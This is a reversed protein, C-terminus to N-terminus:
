LKIIKSSKIITGQTVEVFYIGPQLDDGIRVPQLPRINNISKVVTGNQKLVRLNVKENSKSLITVYFHSPSPNPLVTILFNNDNNGQSKPVNVTASASDKNGNVDTAIVKITYIRGNGSELREARLKVLHDNVIQWDPALDGPEGSQVPENSSVVIQTNAVGANDSVTYNVTVDKMSRNPPWLTTPSVTLGTIVPPESDLILKAILGLNFGYEDVGNGAVYFNNGVLHATSLYNDLAAFSHIFQGTNGFSPDQIGASTFRTLVFENNNQDNRRFGYVLIKQDPQMTVVNGDCPLSGNIGFTDDTSGDINLRSLSFIQASQTLFSTFLVKNDNQIVLNGFAVNETSEISRKGQDGFTADLSGDPNLRALFVYMKFIPFFSLVTSGFVIKGDPGVAISTIAEENGIDVIVFGNTGFSADVTGDANYRGALFNSGNADRSIGGIIIKGDPQFAAAAAGEFNGLDTTVTGGNGFTADVTGDTNNRILVIDGNNSGARLLKGDPQFFTPGVADSLTISGNQGFSNDPTGDANFRNFSFINTTLGSTESVALLKGNPLQFVPSYYYFGNHIVDTFFGGNGFSADPTGNENFRLGTASVEVGTSFVTRTGGTVIKGDPKIILFESEESGANIDARLQGNGNTGFGNDITGTNELRVMIIDDGAPEGVSHGSALIKGDNQIRMNTLFETGSGFVTTLFGAPANFSLDPTGNDNYRAITFRSLNSADMSQGGLYIKGTNDIVVSRAVDNFSFDTTTQGIGNFTLDPNGNVDYRAMAFNGNGNTFASGAAIIKGDQQIALANVASPSANIFDTHVIGDIGFSNDINGSSTYGALTFRNNSQGGAIIRGGPAITVASLFDLTAGFDTITVGSNGFSADLSGDTNYRALVFDSSGDRTGAVIIKGDTQLAAASLNISVAVSYGNNGYAADITGNALRRSLRTKTFSQLVQIFKGDPLLLCEKSSTIPNPAAAAAYTKIAGNNGFNPDISQTTALLYCSLLLLLLTIKKM